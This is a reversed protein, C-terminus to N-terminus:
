GIGAELIERDKLRMFLPSVNRQQSWWMICSRNRMAVPSLDFSNARAPRIRLRFVDFFPGEYSRPTLPIGLHQQYWHGLATPDHARFFFGGIGMVREMKTEGAAGHRVSGAAPSPPATPPVATQAASRDLTFTSGFAFSVFQLIQRRPVDM